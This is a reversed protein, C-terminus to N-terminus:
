ISNLDAGCVMLHASLKECLRLMREVQEHRAALMEFSADFGFAPAAYSPISIAVSRALPGM